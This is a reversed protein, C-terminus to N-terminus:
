APIKRDAAPPAAARTAGSRKEHNPHALALARTLCDRALAAQTATADPDLAAQAANDVAAAAYQQRRHPDDRCCTTATHLDALAHDLSTAATPTM